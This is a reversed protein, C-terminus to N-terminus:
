GKVRSLPDDERSEAGAPLDFDNCPDGLKLLHDKEPHIGWCGQTWGALRGAKWTSGKGSWAITDKCGPCQSVLAVDAERLM